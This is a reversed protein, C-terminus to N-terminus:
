FHEAGHELRRARSSNPARQRLQLLSAFHIIIWLPVMFTPILSLPLMGMSPMPTAPALFGLSSNSTLVGTAVAGVFDLLGGLNLLLVRRRWNPHGDIMALLVFVASVGVALDGLGASFAFLAPRLNFAYLFLFTGGLVRWTQVATLLRLDLGLVLRRFGTSVRYALMFLAPPVVLAALLALPPRGRGAEFVGAAGAAVIVLLWIAGIMALLTVMGSYHPPRDISSRERESPATNIATSMTMEEKDTPAPPRSSRWTGRLARCAEHGIATVVQAQAQRRLPLAQALARREAPTLRMYRERPDLRRESRLLGDRDPRPMNRTLTTRDM